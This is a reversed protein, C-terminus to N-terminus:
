KVKKKADYLECGGAAYWKRGDVLEMFDDLFGAADLSNLNRRSSFVYMTLKIGQYHKKNQNKKM